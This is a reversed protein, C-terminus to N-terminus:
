LEDKDSDEDDAGESETKEKSFGRSNLLENIEDESLDAVAM